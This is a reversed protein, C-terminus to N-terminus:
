LSMNSLMSGKRLAMQSGRSNRRRKSGKAIKQSSILVFFLVFLIIYLM